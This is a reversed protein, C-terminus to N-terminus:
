KFGANKKMVDLKLDNMDSCQINKHCGHCASLVTQSTASSVMKDKVNANDPTWLIFVIKNTPAPIDYVAFLCSKENFNSVFDEHSAGKDGAKKMVVQNSDANLGFILYQHQRKLKLAEFSSKVDPACGIGSM